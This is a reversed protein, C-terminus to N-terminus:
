QQSPQKGELKDVIALLRAVYRADFVGRGDHVSMGQPHLASYIDAELDRRMYDPILSKM